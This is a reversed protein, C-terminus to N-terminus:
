RKATVKTKKKPKVPEIKEGFIMVNRQGYPTAIGKDKSAVTATEWFSRLAPSTVITKVLYVFLTAAVIMLGILGLDLLMQAMFGTVVATLFLLYEYIQTPTGVVLRMSGFEVLRLMGYILVYLTVYRAPEAYHTFKKSQKAPTTM